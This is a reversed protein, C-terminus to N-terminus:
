SFLIKSKKSVAEKDVVVEVTYTNDTVRKTDILFRYKYCRGTWSKNNSEIIGASILDHVAKYYYGGVSKRLYKSPVDFWGNRDYRKYLFAEYVKILRIVRRRNKQKKILEDLEETILVTM